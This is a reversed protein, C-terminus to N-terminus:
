KGNQFLDRLAAEAEPYQFQFGLETLRKPIAKQGKLLLLSLEGFALQFAFAPTPFFSPRGLAKGLAKGFAANSLPHPASLNFVGRAESNGLLFRIAAVEDDIHIWPTQQKGSGLPGGAFLKFPLAQMPLAGGKTSLVVGTRLVVRRVGMKEVDATTAEWAKCTEGLFDTGAPSDETVDRDDDYTGYYGVASSQILVAPKKSANKIAELVAKGANVRSDLISRKREATWRSPPFGEGAISEGALNIIADAGDALEGWGKASRADWTVVRAAAPLGSTRNPNRSLIIVEHQDHALSHALARGILGTGGTIIVRMARRRSITYTIQICPNYARWRFLTL